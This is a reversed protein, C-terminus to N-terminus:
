REDFRIREYQMKLMELLNVKEDAIKKLDNMTLVIIVIGEKHYETRIVYWASDKGSEGTIKKRIILIGTNCRAYRVNTSFNKIIKSTINKDQNKCEVLFYRGLLELIPDDTILNRVRLDNESHLTKVRCSVEFKGITFFLYASLMELYHGLDQTRSASLTENILLKAFLNDWFLFQNAKIRNKPNTMFELFIFEPNSLGIKLGSRNEKILKRLTGIERDEDDFTNLSKLNRYGPARKFDDSDLNPQNLMDEIMGLIFYTKAKNKENSYLLSIGLNHYIGGKHVRSLGKKIKQIMVLAKLFKQYLSRIFHSLQPHNLILYFGVKDWMQYIVTYEIREPVIESTKLKRLRDISHIYLEETLEEFRAIVENINSMLPNLNSALEEISNSRIYNHVRDPFTGQEYPTDTLECRLNQTDENM